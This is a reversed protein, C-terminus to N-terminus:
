KTKKILISMILAIFSIIGSGVFSWLLFDAGIRHGYITTSISNIPLDNFFFYLMMSTWFSTCQYCNLMDGFFPSNILLWNRFPEMIKSSVLIHTLGWSSLIFFIFSEM